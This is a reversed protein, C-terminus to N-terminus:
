ITMRRDGHLLGSVARIKQRVACTREVLYGHLSDALGGADDGGGTWYFDQGAVSCGVSTWTV